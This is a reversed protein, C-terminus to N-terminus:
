QKESTQDCSVLAKGVKWRSQKFVFKKKDDTITKLFSIMGYLCDPKRPLPYWSAHESKTKKSIGKWNQKM